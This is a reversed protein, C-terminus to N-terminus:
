TAEEGLDGDVLTKMAEDAKEWEYVSLQFDNGTSDVAGWCVRLAKALREARAQQADARAKIAAMEARLVDVEDCL